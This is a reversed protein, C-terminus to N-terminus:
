GRSGIEVGWVYFGWRKLTTGPKTQFRGVLPGWLGPNHRVRWMVIWTQLPSIHLPIHLKKMARNFYGTPRRDVYLNM